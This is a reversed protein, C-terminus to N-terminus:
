KSVGKANKEIEKRFINKPGLVELVYELMDRNSAITRAAKTIASARISEIWNSTEDKTYTETYVINAWKLSSGDETREFMHRLFPAGWSLSLEYYESVIAESEESLEKLTATGMREFAWEKSSLPKAKAAKLSLKDEGGMVKALQYLVSGYMVALPKQPEDEYDMLTKLYLVALQRSKDEREWVPRTMNEFPNTSFRIDRDTMSNGDGDTLIGELSVTFPEKRKVPENGESENKPPTYRGFKKRFYKDISKNQAIKLYRAIAHEYYKGAAKDAQLQEYLCECGDQLAEDVEANFGALKYGSVKREVWGRNLRRLLMYLDSLLYEEQYESLPERPHIYAEYKGMFATELIRRSPSKEKKTKQLEIDDPESYEEDAYSEAEDYADSEDLYLSSVDIDLWDSKIGREALTIAAFLAKSM